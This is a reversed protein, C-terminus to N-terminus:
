IVEKRAAWIVTGSLLYVVTAAIGLAPLLMGHMAMLQSLKVAPMQWAAIASGIGTAGLLLLNKIWLPLEYPEPLQVLVARTFGEDPLHPETRRLQAFINDLNDQTNM